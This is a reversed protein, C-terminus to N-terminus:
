IRRDASGTPAAHQIRFCICAIKSVGVRERGPVGGGRRGRGFWGCTKLNDTLIVSKKLKPDVKQWDLFEDFFM